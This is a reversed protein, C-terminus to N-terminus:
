SISKQMSRSALFVIVGYIQELVQEIQSCISQDHAPTQDVEEGHELCRKVLAIEWRM